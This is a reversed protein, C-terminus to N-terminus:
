HIKWGNFLWALWFISNLWMDKLFQVHLCSGCVMCIMFSSGMIQARIGLSDFMYACWVSSTCMDQAFHINLCLPFPLSLSLYSPWGSALAESSCTSIFISFVLIGLPLGSPSTQPLLGLHVGYIYIRKLEYSCRKKNPQHNRGNTM